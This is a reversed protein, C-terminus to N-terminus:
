SIQEISVVNYQSLAALSVNAGNNQYAAISISDGYNCVVIDEVSLNLPPNVTPSTEFVSEVIKQVAGNKYVGVSGVEGSAWGSAASIYISANVRYIGPEKCVFRWGDTYTAQIGTGVGVVENRTDIVKDEFDVYRSANNPLTGGANTTYKAIGKRAEFTKCSAIAGTVSGHFNNGSFDLWSSDRIGEPELDLVAGLQLIRITDVKATAAGGAARISLYYTGTADATFTMTEEIYTTDIQFNVLGSFVTPYTGFNDGSNTTAVYTYVSGTKDKHKLTIKYKKGAVVPFAYDVRFGNASGSFDLRYSGTDADGSVSTMTATGYGAAWGTNSNAENNPNAANASSYLTMSGGVDEYDLKAGASYRRIKDESLAYNFFLVRSVEGNYSDSSANGVKWPLNGVPAKRTKTIEPGPIGNIYGKYKDTSYRTCTYTTVGGSSPIYVGLSATSSSGDADAMQLQGTTTRMQIYHGGSQAIFLTASRSAPIRATVMITADSSGIALAPESTVHDIYDSQGLNYKANNSSSDQVDQMVAARTSGGAPSTSADLLLKKTKDTKDSIQVTGDDLIEVAGNANNANRIRKTTM